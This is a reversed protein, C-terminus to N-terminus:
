THGNFREVEKINITIDWKKDIIKNARPLNNPDKVNKLYNPLVIKM